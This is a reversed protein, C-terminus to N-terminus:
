VFLSGADSLTEDREDYDCAGNLLRRSRPKISRRGSSRKMRMIHTPCKQHIRHAVHRSAVTWVFHHSFCLVCNQSTQLWESWWDKCGRQASFCREARGFLFSRMQPSVRAVMKNGYVAIFYFLCSAIACLSRKRRGRVQQKLSDSTWWISLLRFSDM